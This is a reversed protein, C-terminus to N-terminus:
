FVERIRFCLTDDEHYLKGKARFRANKKILSVPGEFDHFAVRARWKEDIWVVARGPYVKEVLVDYVDKNYTRTSNSKSISKMVIQDIGVKNIKGMGELEDVASNIIDASFGEEEILDKIKLGRSGSKLAKLYIRKAVKNVDKIFEKVKEQESRFLHPESRTIEAEREIERLEEVSMIMPELKPGPRFMSESEQNLTKAIDKMKGVKRISTILCIMDYTDKTVLILAKGVAKRGTRGKRQIYRIESPIPEYFIVLDVSPIDLGEEAICTAVLVNTDGERFDEILKAQEKQKLGRDDLKNAQGVFREVSANSITKLCDVLYSATDRYQTFVIVKSNEKKLQNDVEEKLLAIKPHDLTENESILERLSCYRPDKIIAKYSKKKESESEVRDLFAKFTIIGQTELLELSHSLTLASSQFIIGTYIPGKKENPVRNLRYRLKDGVELLYRKGIYNPKKHIFNKNSLWRLKENLMEKIINSAKKYEDPLDTYRRDVEVPNIYPAVDEDEESRYEVQEIYLAKCIELIRKKDSGPSATMGLIMPWGTQSVYKKAVYTYAYDKRARHCEDFILFSFNKLTTLDNELDNKVVQPTAFIVKTSGDWIKKRYSIPIKGTLAIVDKDRLKLFNMFSEKHQMVLPRTPAMVLIRKNKYNYLYQAVVMASIVTKGLATPLVVLTNRQCAKKVISQQYQRAEIRNPWILPEKVYKKESIGKIGM